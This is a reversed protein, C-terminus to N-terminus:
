FDDGMDEEYYHGDAYDEDLGDIDNAENEYEENVEMQRERELDEVEADTEVTQNLTLKIENDPEEEANLYENLEQQRVYTEPNYKFLSKQMGVNWRGIKFQKLMDEVKREDREMKEFADTIQKKEKDRKRQTKFRIDEYTMNTSKKTQMFVQLFNVLLEGTTDKIKRVNGLEIEVEMLPMNEADGMEGSSVFSPERRERAIERQERIREKRDFEIIDPDEVGVIYEYLVSYWAYKLLLYVTEKSYLSHYEIGDKIIPMFMPLQKVFLLVSSLKSYINELLTTISKNKMYKTLFRYYEDIMNSLITNHEYCLQWHRKNSYAVNNNHIIYKPFIKVISEIANSIFQRVSYMTKADNPSDMKWVCIEHIFVQLADYQANSLNGHKDLFETIKAYMKGNTRQLYNNLSTNSEREENVMISPNYDNLTKWLLERLGRDIVESDQLEFQELIDKFMTIQSVEEPRVGYYVSVQNQRNVISMLHEFHHKAYRKGNTKMKEIKADLSDMRSYVAPKENCIIELERPIPIDLDFNCYHIISGYIIHENIESVLEGREIGTNEQHFMIAPKAMQTAGRLMEAVSNIKQIYNGITPDEKIFYSLPQILGENCCANELFPERTSTTLLLDKKSVVGQILEVIGYVHKELKSRLIGISEFQSRHGDRMARLLEDKFDPGVGHLSKVIHFEVLPPHFHVWKAVNLSSPIADNPHVVLYERKIECLRQIDPRKLLYTGIFDKMRKVLTNMSLPEIANWPVISSKSHFLICSIYKLASVDEEGSDVPFGSFSQVCGPFTKKTRFSPILTMIAVITLSAVTMVLIQNRYIVYPVIQKEKANKARKEAYKLYTKESLVTETDNMIEATIRLVMEEIEEFVAGSNIQIHDSIVSFVNYANQVETSDFVKDKKSFVENLADGLEKEMIKNTIIRFGSEDYGEEAVFDIQRLVYYTHKDIICDGDSSLEGYEACIKDLTDNYTDTEIFSKALLYLSLPFLQTNTERCYMWYQNEDRDIMPERAFNEVFRMIDSQRKVFDTQAMISKRLPEYPSETAEVQVARNGLSVAYENQRKDQINYLIQKRFVRQNLKDISTEIERAVEELSLSVRRDFEDQMRNLTIAKMRTAATDNPACVKSPTIQICERSMNCMLMSSDVFSNEDVSEDRVWHDNVRKYYQIRKRVDSEIGIQEQEKPSLTSEDADSDPLTPRLELIAYGDKVRKKGALITQALESAMDEPCDHKSILVEKFYEFFLEPLMERKKDKYKKLIDYPTDDYEKDYFVEESNNDKRLDEISTYKKAIFRRFCDTARIKEINTMDDLKAIEVSNLIKDPTVLSILMKNVMRLYMQGGDLAYIKNLLESTFGDVNVKQSSSKKAYLDEDTSLPAIKYCERFIADLQQDSQLIVNIINVFPKVDYNTQRLLQFDNEAKKIKAKYKKIEEKIFYRIEKYHTFTIDPTYVLFPELLRIMDYMSLEGRIRHKAFEILIRKKPLVANLFKNFTTADIPISPDLAYEKITHRNGLFTNIEGTTKEATNETLSTYEIEKSLDSVYVTQINTKSKLARFLDISAHSLLSKDAINTGPLEVRSYQVFQEPFVLLSRIYMEDNENVPKRSYTRKGTQLENSVMKTNGLGYRQIVFRRRGEGNFRWVTSHFDDTNYVAADIDTQVRNKKLTKDTFFDPSQFSALEEMLDQIMRDYPQLREANQSYKAQIDEMTEMDTEIIRNTVDPQVAPQEPSFIHIKKQSQVLPLLWRLRHKLQPIIDTLPKHYAGMIKPSLVIGTKDFVSFQERLQRFKHILNHVRAFIRHTRQLVPVASIFEDTMDILQAEITYRRENEPVEVMKVDDELDEEIIEAADLYLSRLVEGVTPKPQANEPIHIVAEGTDVYEMYAETDESVVVDEGEDEATRAITTVRGLSEPRDRLVFKEIPIHEPIGKYEFDIYIVSRDPYTTVEIMDEELNTIEGSIITPVDGGFHIDVWQSTVLKHQRAFGKEKCRCLISVQRITEDTFKGDSNITLTHTQYSSVHLLRIINSDIYTIAYIQDNIETNTPARIEIIDGLELTGDTSEPTNKNEDMEPGDNQPEVPDEM